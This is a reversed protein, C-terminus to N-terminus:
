LLIVEHPDALFGLVGQAGRQIQRQLIVGAAAYPRGLDGTARPHRLLEEFRDQSVQALGPQDRALASRIAPVPESGIRRPDRRTATTSAISPGNVALAM